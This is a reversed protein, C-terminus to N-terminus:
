NDSSENKKLFIGTLNEMRNCILIYVTVIIMGTLINILDRETRLLWGIGFLLLAMGIYLLIRKLNYPIQYYKRGYIWTLLLMVGNSFVHIWACAIYGFKPIFLINFVITLVAGVATIYVGYVTHGSLKYWMNVNVLMGVLVNAILVVPVIHLGEHYNSKIFYKYFDICLAVHLFIIMLFITFYKLINAYVAKSDAKGFYNFFFPEAAYRFMQVFITMLVAIRYNAGYIGLQYLPDTGEPSLRRILIRDITENFIGALGAVLLPLSYALIKILLKRDITSKILGENKLLILLIILSSIVNAIFVYGVGIGSMYRVYWSSDSIFSIAPLIELFLFVFFITVVVNIIKITAFQKVKNEVRLKAFVISCIADMSLTLGLYTVYEPNGEYEIWSAINKRLVLTLAAFLISTISVTNLITYYVRKRDENGTSFKFLGTEMGYTLVVMLIAVYAYLETIIGYVEPQFKRTYYVTLVTYNLIRPIINGLGYILSQGGLNKYPNAM